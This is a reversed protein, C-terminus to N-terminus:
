CILLQYANLFIDNNTSEKITKNEDTDAIVGVPLNPITYADPVGSTSKELIFIPNVFERSHVMLLIEDTLAIM